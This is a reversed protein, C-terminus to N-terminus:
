IWRYVLEATNLGADYFPGTSDTVYQDGQNNNVLGIGGPFPAAAHVCFSNLGQVSQTGGSTPDGPTRFDMFTSTAPYETDLQVNPIRGAITTIVATQRIGLNMAGQVPVGASSGLGHTVHGNSDIIGFGALTLMNIPTGDGFCMTGDNNITLIPVNATEDRVLIPM